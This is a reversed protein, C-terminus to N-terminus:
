HHHLRLRACRHQQGPCRPCSQLDTTDLAFLATTGVLAFADECAVLFGNTTETPNIASDHEIVEIQRCALGGESNLRDAWAKVGDISGQFLGPALSSGVDAMVLVTITDSSIGIDTAELDVAECPDVEPVETAVPEAASDDMEEDMDDSDDMEEDMDDSDDMDDDMDDMDDDM